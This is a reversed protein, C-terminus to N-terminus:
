KTIARRYTFVHLIEFFNNFRVKRFTAEKVSYVLIERLQDLSVEGETPLMAVNPGILESFHYLLILRNRLTPLPIDRM